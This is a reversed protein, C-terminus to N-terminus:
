LLKSDKRPGLPTTQPGQPPGHGEGLFAKAGGLSILPFLFLIFFVIFIILFGGFFNVWLLDLSVPAM